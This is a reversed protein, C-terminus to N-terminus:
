GVGPVLHSFRLALGGVTLLGGATANVIPYSWYARDIAVDGITWALVLLPYIALVLGALPLVTGVLLAALTWMAACYALTHREGLLTATTTIGAERDPEIDPIASFTHMAGAWAWTGALVIPDPHTAVLAYALAGPLIYLGNSLSDAIPTTKFRFPPASYAAGLALFALHYPWTEVPLWALLALGLALSIAIAAVVSPASQWRAERAHKKPNDQDIDVDFRDNVGYLYVNAPVLYYAFLVWPRPEALTEISPIGWALGVLVPGALYLWFRPRSLRFLYALTV